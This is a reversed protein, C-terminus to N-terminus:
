DTEFAPIQEPSSETEPFRSYRSKGWTKGRGSGIRGLHFQGELDRGAEEQQDLGELRHQELVGVVRLPDIRAPETLRVSVPCRSRNHRDRFIPILSRGRGKVGAMIVAAPDRRAGHGREALFVHSFTSIFLQIIRVQDGGRLKGSIQVEVNGCCSRIGGVHRIKLFFEVVRGRSRWVGGRRRSCLVGGVPGVVTPVM